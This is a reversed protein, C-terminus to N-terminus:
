SAILRHGPPRWSRRRGILQRLDAAPQPPAFFYGQADDCGLRILEALQAQTEVGEAVVDLDLAHALGIVASVIAGDGPDAGLGDVFSRDVKVGDVPFQKLYGLSSYGTGFDDIHLRVGLARVQEIVRLATEADDMLVSETIELCLNAPRVGSRAIVGAVHEALDAQALQRASLNVSVLFPQEHEIQWQAAERAAQELVWQGLRVVLGTEEAVPIFEAPAILGREPHQWRVLAEAGICRGDRLSVVPQFFVRLEGREIARHLANETAHRALARARMSDDFVMVRARGSEKASYMAADADRLLEDPREDGSAIAIGVSASVFTDSGRVVFPQAISALVRNAIDLADERATSVPLDECLIAFEDGGFRAVSDGPRLLSELRRAATVLLEDGAGHGGSENVNKFRDLDCFLVAVETHARRCRAVALALRDLFLLRNPLGTLPDHMSQHALRDEFEKREIAISALHALLSFIQVHETDPTRTERAYVDLTGLVTHGDSGFIPTSWCATIGHGLAVDRLGAWLEDHAIDDVYVPERRFAATGASGSSPGLPLGDIADALRAGLTPAAGTRLTAGGADLLSIACTLRPFHDEVTSAITRLTQELPVGRAVGELIEAQHSTLLAARRRETIDRGVSQFERVAGREDVFARDTWQYWHVSGDAAVEWDEKAQVSSAPGFSQLRALQSERDAPPVLDILRTGVLEEPDRGHFEAFARNVFTLTTDPRYRCVLETQDDVVARYRADRERVRAESARLADEADKRESVDRTTVVVGQVAPEDLMDNAVIEAHIWSGDVHRLRAEVPRSMGRMERTRDLLTAVRVRDDPHVIELISEGCGTGPRYGLMTEAVPSSYRLTGDRDVVSIVDSASAVLARLRAESGRLAVEAECRDTVDRASSVIGRVAPDDLLNTATMEIWRRDGGARLARYTLSEAAGPTERVREFLADVAPQDAPDVRAVPPRADLDGPDLGLFECSAPSAYTVRGDADLVTLMGTANEVLSRLRAESVRLAEEARRQEAADAIVAVASVVRSGGLRLPAVAVTVDAGAGGRRVYRAGYGIVTEGAFVRELLADFEAADAVFRPRRGVAEEAPWGFLLECAASWVHVIGRADFAVLALPSAQVVARLAAENRRADLGARAEDARRDEIAASRLDITRDPQSRAGSM